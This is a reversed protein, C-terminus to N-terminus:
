FPIGDHEDDSPKDTQMEAPEDFDTPKDVWRVYELKGKFGSAGGSFTIKESGAYKFCPVKGEVKHQWAASMAEDFTQGELLGFRQWLYVGKDKIYIRASFARKYDQAVLEKANDPKVGVQQDWVFQYQGDYKGYGTQFDTDILMYEFDLPEVGEANNIVFKGLRFDHKIYMGLGEKDDLELFSM